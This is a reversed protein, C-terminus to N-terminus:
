TSSPSTTPGCRSPSTAGLTTTSGRSGVGVQLRWSRRCKDEDFELVQWRSGIGLRPGYVEAADSGWTTAGVVEFMGALTSLRQSVGDPVLLLRGDPFSWRDVPGAPDWVNLVGDVDLFLLPLGEDGHGVRGDVGVTM